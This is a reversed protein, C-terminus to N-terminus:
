YQTQSQIDRKTKINREKKEDKRFEDTLKHRNSILKHKIDRLDFKRIFQFM